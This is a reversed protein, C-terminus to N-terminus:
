YSGKKVSSQLNGSYSLYLSHHKVENIEDNHKGSTPKKMKPYISKATLARGLVLQIWM